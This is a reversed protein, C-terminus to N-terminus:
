IRSFGISHASKWDPAKIWCVTTAITTSASTSDHKRRLVDVDVQLQFRYRFKWRQRAHPNCHLWSILGKSLGRNHVHLDHCRLLLLQRFICETAQWKEFQPHLLVRWPEWMRLDGKSQSLYPVDYLLDNVKQQNKKPQDIMLHMSTKEFYFICALL